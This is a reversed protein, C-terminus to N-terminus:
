KEIVDGIVGDATHVKVTLGINVIRSANKLYDNLEDESFDLTMQDNVAYSLMGTDKNHKTEIEDIHPARVKMNMKVIEIRLSNKKLVQLVGYAGDTYHETKLLENKFEEVKRFERPRLMYESGVFVDDRHNKIYKLLDDDTLFDTKKRVSLKHNKVLYVYIHHVFIKYLNQYLGDIIKSLEFDSPATIKLLSIELNDGDAPGILSGFQKQFYDRIKRAIMEKQQDPNKDM